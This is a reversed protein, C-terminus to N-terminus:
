IWAGLLAMIVGVIFLFVGFFPSAAALIIGAFALARGAGELMRRNAQLM